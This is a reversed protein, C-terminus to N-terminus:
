NLSSKQNEENQWRGCCKWCGQRLAYFCQSRQSCLPIRVLNISALLSNRADNEPFSRLSHRGVYVEGPTVKPDFLPDWRAINPWSFNLGARLLQSGDETRSPIEPRWDPLLGSVGQFREWLLNEFELEPHRLLLDAFPTRDCQKEHEPSKRDSKPWKKQHKQRLLALPPHMDGHGAPPICFIM